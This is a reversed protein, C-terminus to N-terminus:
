TRQERAPRKIQMRSGTVQGSDVARQLEKSGHDLVKRARQVSSRGVNLSEAADSRSPAGIPAHQNEGKKITAIRAAAM